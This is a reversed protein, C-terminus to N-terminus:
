SASTCCFSPSPPPTPPTDGPGRTFLTGPPRVWSHDCDGWVLEELCTWGMGQVFGGEVQRGGGGGSVM